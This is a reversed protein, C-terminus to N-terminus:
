DHYQHSILGMSVGDIQENVTGNVTFAKKICFDKLLKEITKKKINAAILNKNYLRDLINNKILSSILFTM